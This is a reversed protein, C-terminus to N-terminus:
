IDILLILCTGNSILQGSGFGSGNLSSATVNGGLAQITDVRSWQNSVNTGGTGVDAECVSEARVDGGLVELRPVYSFGYGSGIGAGRYGKATIHGGLITINYVTRDLARTGRLRMLAM